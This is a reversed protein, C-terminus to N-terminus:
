WVATHVQDVFLFWPDGNLDTDQEIQVLYQKSYPVWAAPVTKNIWYQTGDIKMGIYHLYHYTNDITYYFQVNHWTNPGWKQCPLNYQHLWHKNVNDWIDWTSTAYNCQIGFHYKWDGIIMRTDLEIAQVVYKGNSQKTHNNPADWLLDLGWEIHRAWTQDGLAKIFLDDAWAGYAGKIYMVMSKGDKSPSTVGQKYWYNSTVGWDACVSCAIWGSADDLNSFWKANSPVTPVQAFLAGALFCLVATLILFRM